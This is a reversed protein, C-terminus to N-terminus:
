YGTYVGSTMDRDAKLDAEREALAKARTSFLDSMEKIMFYTLRNRTMSTFFSMADEPFSGTARIILNREATSMFPIENLAQYALNHADIRVQACRPDPRWHSEVMNVIEGTFYERFARWYMSAPGHERVHKYLRFNAEDEFLRANAEFIARHADKSQGNERLIEGDLEPIELKNSFKLKQGNFDAPYLEYGLLFYVDQAGQRLSLEMENTVDIIGIHTDIGEQSGNMITFQVMGM